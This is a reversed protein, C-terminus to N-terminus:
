AQAAVVQALYAEADLETEFIGERYRVLPYGDLMRKMVELWGDDHNLSDLHMEADIQDFEDVFAPVLREPDELVYVGLLRGSGTYEVVAPRAM